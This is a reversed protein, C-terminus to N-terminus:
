DTTNNFRKLQLNLKNNSGICGKIITWVKNCAALYRPDFPGLNELEKDTADQDFTERDLIPAREIM